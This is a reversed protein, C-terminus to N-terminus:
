QYHKCIALTQAHHKIWANVELEPPLHPPAMLFSILYMSAMGWGKLFSCFAHGFPWAEHGSPCQERDHPMSTSWTHLIMPCWLREHPRTKCLDWASEIYSIYCVQPNGQQATMKDGPHTFLVGLIESIENISVNGYVCTYMFIYEPVCFM